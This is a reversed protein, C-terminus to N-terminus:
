LLGMVIKKFKSSSDLNTTGGLRWGSGNRGLHWSLRRADSTDKTDAANLSVDGCPAFGMSSQANCYWHAGSVEHTENGTTDRFVQGPPAIACLKLNAENAGRGGVLVYRFKECRAKIADFSHGTDHSYPEDYVAEWPLMTPDYDLHIGLEPDLRLDAVKQVDDGTLGLQRAAAEDLERVGAESLGQSVLTSLGADSLGVTELDRRLAVGAEGEGVKHADEEGLGLEAAATADLTSVSDATQGSAVLACTASETLKLPALYNRLTVEAEIKMSGVVNIGQQQCLTGRQATPLKVLDSASVGPGCAIALTVLPCTCINALKTLGYYHAEAALLSLDAVVPPISLLQGNRLYNLVYHFSPGDRDIVYAGRSSRPLPGKPTRPDAERGRGFTPQGGQQMPEFMCFLRSGPESLLTTLVTTFPTGGVDLEIPQEPPQIGLNFEAELHVGYEALTHGDDLRRGGLSIIQLDPNAEPLKAAVKDRLEEVTDVGQVDFTLKRGNPTTM